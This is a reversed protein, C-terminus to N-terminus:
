DFEKGNATLNKLFRKFTRLSFDKDLEIELQAKALKLRQRESKVIAKVKEGDEEKNLIPKRGQGARTHLGILGEQEYRQTWQSVTAKSVSIIDAITETSLGKNRLLIIHCRRSYIAKGRKYGQELEEREESTLKIVKTKRGM